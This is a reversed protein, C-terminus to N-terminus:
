RGRRGRGRGGRGFSRRGLIPRVVNYAPRPQVAYGAPLVCYGRAGGTMPGEGRPGTGDYGPM